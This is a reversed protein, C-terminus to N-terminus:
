ITNEYNQTMVELMVKPDSIGGTYSHTVQLPTTAKELELWVSQELEGDPFIYGEPLQIWFTSNILGACHKPVVKM